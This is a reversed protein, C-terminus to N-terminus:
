EATRADRAEGVRVEAKLLEVTNQFARELLEPSLTLPYVSGSRAMGAMVIDAAFELVDILDVDERVGQPVSIHHRETLKHKDLWGQVKFGTKFDSYFEDIGELKTWDHKDSARQILWQFHDMALRVDAIHQKSAKLLEERSVKTVDCTRTDATASKKIQIMCGGMKIKVRAPNQKGAITGCSSM